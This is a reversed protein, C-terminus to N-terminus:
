QFSPPNHGRAKLAEVIETGKRQNWEAGAAMSAQVVTPLLQVLRRGIPSKYFAILEELEKRTFHQTYVAAMSAEVENADLTALVETWTEEKVLPYASRIQAALVQVTQEAVGEAGSLNMLEIALAEMSPEEAAAPLTPLAVCAALALSSLLRQFATM